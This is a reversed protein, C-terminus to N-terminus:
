KRHTFENKSNFLNKIIRLLSVFKIDLKFKLIKKKLRFLSWAKLLHNKDSLLASFYRISRCADKDIWPLPVTNRWRDILRWDIMRVPPVFGEKIALQYLETGPYPMYMGVTFSSNGHIRSIEVILDITQYLEDKTETTTGLMFSYLVSVNYKALIRVRELMLAKSFGKNMLKLIRDSGSEVGVLLNITNLKKFEAALEETIYDIRLEFEPFVAIHNLINLARPKNVFFNDDWFHIANIKYKEKLYKVDEYVIDEPFYRWQRKNFELNYCFGCNHPCGRSSIYSLKRVKEQKGEIQISSEQVYKSLDILSFDMRSSNLERYLPRPNNIVVRGNDKYGLGNIEEFRYNGSLLHNALELTTEEGEQLIVFDICDEALCQQPLLSPHVGGWAIKIKSKAKIQQSIQVSSATPSGTIVSFGVFLPEDKIIEDVRGSITKQGAHIIKIEYGASRLKGGIYLLGFPPIMEGTEDDLKILYIKNNNQM